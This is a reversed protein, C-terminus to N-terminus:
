QGKRRRSEAKGLILTKELSNARLMLHGFYQLKLKLMLGKFSYESNKEKLYVQKIGKNNFPSKLTKELVVTPFCWNKSTWRKKCDLEWMQVHSSSFGYSQSYLSTLLIQKNAINRSKLVRDLNTMTNRGLLLHRKVEHSCDGDATTKSGWFIFDAVIEMKGGDMQWSIITYM